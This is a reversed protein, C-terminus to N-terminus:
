GGEGKGLGAQHRSITKAARRYDKILLRFKAWEEDDEDDSIQEVCDAFPKLAEVLEAVAATRHAAFAQVIGTSDWKGSRIHDRYKEVLGEGDVMWNAAAERDAQTITESAM